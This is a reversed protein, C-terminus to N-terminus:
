TTKKTEDNSEIIDLKMYGVVKKGEIFMRCISSCKEQLYMLEM